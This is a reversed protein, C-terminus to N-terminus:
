PKLLRAIFDALDFSLLNSILIVAITLGVGGIMGRTHNNKRVSQVFRDRFSTKATDITALHGEGRIVVIRAGEPKRRFSPNQPFSM